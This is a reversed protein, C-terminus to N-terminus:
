RRIWDPLSPTAGRQSCVYSSVGTAFHAIEKLPQENLLGIMLAATFADGAGVTDTVTTPVSPVRVAESHRLLMAGAAGQTLAISSIQYDDQLSKLIDITEGSLSLINAIVCLEQDNLKLVNALELSQILTDPAYFPARLNMDFVKLSSAPTANIFKQITQRSIDGRQALSGFCIADANAALDRWKESWVIRDWAVNDSINFLAQGSDDLQVTVTGTPAGTIQLASVDVQRQRLFGIAERGRRDDGLASVLTVAGTAGLLSATACAVNAPAGGFRAGDPFLDWLVEGLGIISFCPKM